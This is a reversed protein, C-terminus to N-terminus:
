SHTRAMWTLHATLTRALSAENCMTEKSGHIVLQVYRMFHVTQDPANICIVRGSDKKMRYSPVICHDCFISLRSDYSLEHSNIQQQKTSSDFLILSIDSINLRVILYAKIQCIIFHEQCIQITIFSNFLFPDRPSYHIDCSILRHKSCIRRETQGECRNFIAIDWSRLSFDPNIQVYVCASRRRRRSVLRTKERGPAFSFFPNRPQVGETVM